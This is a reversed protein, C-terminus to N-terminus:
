RLWGALRCIRGHRGVAESYHRALENALMAARHLEDNGTESLGLLGARLTSSYPLYFTRLVSPFASGFDALVTDIGDLSTGSM